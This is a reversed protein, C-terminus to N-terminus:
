LGKYKYVPPQNPHFHRTRPILNGVHVLPAGQPAYQVVPAAQPAYQLPQTVVPAQAYGYSYTPYPVAQPFAAFPSSAAPAHALLSSAPAPAAASTQASLAAEVMSEVDQNQEASLEALDPDKQQVAALYLEQGQEVLERIRGSATTETGRFDRLDQLIAQRQFNSLGLRGSVAPAFGAAPASGTTTLTYTTVTPAQSYTVVTPAAMVTPAQSYTVTPAASYTVAPAQYYTLPAQAVAMPQVAYSYAPAAAKHRLHDGALCAHGAFLLLGLTAPVIAPRRPEM